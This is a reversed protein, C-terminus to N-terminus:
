GTGLFFGFVSPSGFSGFCYGLSYGILFGPAAGAAEAAGGAVPATAAVVAAGATALAYGSVKGFTSYDVAENFGTTGARIFRM